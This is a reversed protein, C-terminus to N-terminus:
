VSLAVESRHEKEGDEAAPPFAGSPGVRNSAKAFIQFPSNQFFVIEM